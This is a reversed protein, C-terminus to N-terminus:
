GSAIEVHIVQSELAAVAFSVKTYIGVALEHFAARQVVYCGHQGVILFLSQNAAPLPTKIQGKQITSVCCRRGGGVWHHLALRLFGCHVVFIIVNKKISNTTKKYTYDQYKKLKECIIIFFFNFFGHGCFRATRRAM